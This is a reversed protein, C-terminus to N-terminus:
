LDVITHFHESDEGLSKIAKIWTFLDFLPCPAFSPFSISVLLFLILSSFFVCFQIGIRSVSSSSFAVNPPSSFESTEYRLFRINRRSAYALSSSPLSPFPACRTPPVKVDTSTVGVAPTAPQPFIHPWLPRSFSSGLFELLLQLLISSSSSSLSSSPLIPTRFSPFSLTASFTFNLEMPLLQCSLSLSLILSNHFRWLFSFVARLSSPLSFFSCLLLPSSLFPVSCPYVWRRRRAAQGNVWPVRGAPEVVIGGEGGRSGTIQM